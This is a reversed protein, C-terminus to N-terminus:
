SKKSRSEQSRPYNQKILRILLNIAEKADKAVFIHYPKVEEEPFAIGFKEEREMMTAAAGTKSGTDKIVIVPGRGEWVRRAEQYAGSSGDVIIAGQASLGTIENRAFRMGTLIKVTSCDNGDTFSDDPLIGIVLGGKEKAGKAAAEMVGGLGGNILIHGKKAIEKGVEYAVRYSKQYRHGSGFVGIQFPKNTLNIKKM